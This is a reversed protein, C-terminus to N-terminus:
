EDGERIGAEGTETERGRVTVNAHYWSDVPMCEFNDLWAPLEGEEDRKEEEEEAEAEVWCSLFGLCAGRTSPPSPPPPRPPCPFRSTDGTRTALVTPM